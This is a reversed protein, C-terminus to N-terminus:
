VEAEFDINAYIDRLPLRCDLAALHVKEEIDAFTEVNWGAAGRTFLEVLPHQQDIVLCAQISPVDFYYDAKEGRDYNSSTPSTVEVVLTPNLIVRSNSETRIQGCVVTVDPSVVRRAGVKVLMGGMVVECKAIDLQAELMQLVKKAIRFHNLTGGTMPCIEGDILEYREESTEAFDLFEEITKERVREILM